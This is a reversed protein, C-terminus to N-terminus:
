PTSPLRLPLNALDPGLQVMFLSGSNIQAVFRAQLQELAWDAAVFGDYLGACVLCVFGDDDIESSLELGSDSMM